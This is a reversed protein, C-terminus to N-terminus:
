FSELPKEGHERHAACGCARDRREPVPDYGGPHFPHCKGVRCLTLWLGKIAGHRRLAEVAYCSCSPHFRCCPGLLGSLTWQYVRVLAILIHKM